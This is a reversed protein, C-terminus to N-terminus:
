AAASMALLQFFEVLNKQVKETTTLCNAVICIYVCTMESVSSISIHQLSDLLDMMFLFTLLTLWLQKEKKLM